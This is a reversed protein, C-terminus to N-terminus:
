SKMLICPMEQESKGSTMMPEPHLKAGTLHWTVVQILSSRYSFESRADLYRSVDAYFLIVTEIWRPKNGSVQLIQCLLVQLLVVKTIPETDNSVVLLRVLQAVELDVVLFLLVFFVLLKTHLAFLAMLRLSPRTKHEDSNVVNQTCEPSSM